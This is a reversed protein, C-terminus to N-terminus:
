KQSLVRKIENFVEEASRAGDIKKLLKKKNYFNVLPLTKELYVRFRNRVTEVKDDERQFLEGGCLECRKGDKPLNFIMHYIQGCEKCTRRGSLRRIIEEEDAEIYLAVNIARGFESLVKELAEAQVVTRPFGDLVFGKQCDNEQIREKIISIVIEDPVLEGKEMYHRAKLGLPTGRKVAERLIDGTSIHPINLYQSIKGAQTGKGVGPPGLLVLNM